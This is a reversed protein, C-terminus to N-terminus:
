SGTRADGSRGVVFWLAEVPEDGVTALRHPVTSEFAISDGPGLLHTDFGVTVELTGSLVHGYERGSHRMLAGGESSAGGPEYVVYLFDVLPDSHDTLREWRVGSGLEIRKRENPHVVRKTGLPPALAHLEQLRQADLLRLGASADPADGAPKGDGVAAALTADADAEPQAAAFLEDLSLKLETTIAYLTGVSPTAKGREIQSILSPSVALRRALERVSIGLAARRNRIQEGLDPLALRDPSPGPEVSVRPFHVRATLSTHQTKVRVGYHTTLKFGKPASASSLGSEAQGRFRMDASSGMAWREVVGVCDSGVAIATWDRTLSLPADTGIMTAVM